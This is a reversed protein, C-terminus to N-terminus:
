PSTEQPEPLQALKKIIAILPSKRKALVALYRDEDYPQATQWCRHIIRIWKYALGRLITHHRHGKEKQQLYYAKAWRSKM